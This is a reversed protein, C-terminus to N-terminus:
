SELLVALNEAPMRNLDWAPVMGDFGAERLMAIESRVREPTIHVIPEVTNVEMGPYVRCACKKLFALEARVLGAHDDEASGTEALVKAFAQGGATRGLMRHEFPIGAPADTYRYEMPKIFDAIASLAQVDQGAFYGFVPTFLDLGLKLGRKRFEDAFYRVSETILACRVRFFADLEPDALAWRGERYAELAIGENEARRLANKLHEPDLGAQRYREECRPCFCGGIGRVGALMSNMRIRDLFVGDFGIDAMERDYLDVVARRNAASSPCRFLFREQENLVYPEMSRGDHDIMADLGPLGALESFVATKFFFPVNWESLRQRMARYFDKDLSWGCLVGQLKGTKYFPELKELLPEAETPSKECLDGTFIQFLYQM